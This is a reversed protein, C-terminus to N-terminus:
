KRGWIVAMPGPVCLHSGQRVEMHKKESLLTIFRESFHMFNIVLGVGMDEPLSVLFLFFNM